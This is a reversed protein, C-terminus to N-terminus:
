PRISPHVSARVWPHVCGRVSLTFVTYGGFVFNAPTYNVKALTKALFYNLCTTKSKLEKDAQGYPVVKTEPSLRQLCNLCLDPRIFCPALDPDLSNSM